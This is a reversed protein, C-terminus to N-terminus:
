SVREGDKEHHDFRDSVLDFHGLLCSSYPLNQTELYEDKEVKSQDNEVNAEQQAQKLQKFKEFDAEVQRATIKASKLEYFDDFHADNDNSYACCIAQYTVPLLLPFRKNWHDYFSETTAGLEKRAEDTLDRQHHRKNRIARLLDKLDESYTRFKRLDEQLGTELRLRWDAGGVLEKQVELQVLIKSDNSEREVRDSADSLFRLCKEASWFLPGALVGQISIRDEAAPRIM